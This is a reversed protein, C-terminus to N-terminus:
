DPEETTLLCDLCSHIHEIDEQKLFEFTVVLAGSVLTFSYENEIPDFSGCAQIKEASRQVKM